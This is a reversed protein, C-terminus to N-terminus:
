AGAASAFAADPVFPRMAQQERLPNDHFFVDLGLADPSLHYRLTRTDELSEGGSMVANPWMILDGCRLVLRMGLRPFLVEDSESLCIYGSKPGCGRNCREPRSGPRVIRLQALHELPFGGVACLRRELAEMAPGTVNTGTCLTLTAGSFTPLPSPVQSRETALDRLHCILSPCLIDPVAVLKPSTSLHYVTVVKGGGDGDDSAVAPVESGTGSPQTDGALESVVVEVASEAAIDTPAGALMRCDKDMFFCNVGYKVGKSPARGAHLMRKDELPEGEPTTGELVNSWVVATGMRPRFSLGLVPFFTDGAEDDEPLDNLYVFVTKPRFKGDHHENFLEGPAYRVMNMRELQSVPLGAVSALRHELREIIGTQAYRLMCSWSTRTQSLTNKMKNKSYGEDSSYTARGVLSPMWYGEVLELLHKCEAETFFNPIVMMKPDKAVVFARLTAPLGEPDEPPEPEGGALARSDVVQLSKARPLLNENVRPPLPPGSVLSTESSRTQALAYANM